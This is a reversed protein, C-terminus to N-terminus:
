APMMMMLLLLMWLKPVVLTTLFQAVQFAM